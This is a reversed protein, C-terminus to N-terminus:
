LHHIMRVELMLPVTVKHRSATSLKNKPSFHLGGKLIKQVRYLLSNIQFGEAAECSIVPPKAEPECAEQLHGLVEDPRTRKWEELRSQSVQSVWGLENSGIFKVLYETSPHGAGESEAIREDVIREAM